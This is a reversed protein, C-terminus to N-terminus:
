NATVQGPRAEPPTAPVAPLSLYFTSGAGPSSEVRVSGKHLQIIERVLTLGLGAGGTRRRDTNDIRYFDNFILQLESPDMGIGQDRVWLVVDDHDNGAGLTIAGGEPSYKLANTLLNDMVLCLSDFDGFFARTERDIEIHLPHRSSGRAFKGAAANFLEAPHLPQMQYSERRAKLRTLRLFNDILRNLRQAEELLIKLYHRQDKETPKNDLMFEAFGLIATLPTRMEHSVAALMEDKLQELGKTENIDIAVEIRALRGDPWHIAKAIVQYWRQDRTNRFERSYPPQPEGDIILRDNACFACPERLGNQLLEFCTKGRWDSTGALTEGLQNLYLLEYTEFDVVYVIAHLSDFIARVEDFQTQLALIYHRILLYLIGATLLVYFWGKYTQLQLILWPDQVMVLLIRDSLLIWLIGMGAYILAIRLPIRYSQHRPRFRPTM